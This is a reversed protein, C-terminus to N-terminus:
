TGPLARLPTTGNPTRPHVFRTAAVVEPEAAAIAEATAPELRVPPMAVTKVVETKTGFKEDDELTVKLFPTDVQPVAPADAQDPRVQLNNFQELVKDIPLIVETADSAAIERVFVEPVQQFITLLSVSPKGRAM